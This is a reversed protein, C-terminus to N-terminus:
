KKGKMRGERLAQSAKKRVEGGDAIELWDEGGGGGGNSNPNRKLFRGGRERVFDVLLSSITFKESKSSNEYWSRLKKAESRFSINGPHTNAKGGRGCIVDNPSPPGSTAATAATTSITAKSSTIATATTPTTTSPAPPVVATIPQSISSLSEVGDAATSTATTMSSSSSSAPSIPYFSAVKSINSNNLKEGGSESLRRAEYGADAAAAVVAVPSPPPPLTPIENNSSGDDSNLGGFVNNYNIKDIREKKYQPVWEKSNRRALPPIIQYNIYDEHQLIQQSAQLATPTTTPPTTPTPAAVGSRSSATFRKAATAAAAATDVTTATRTTTGTGVKRRTTYRQYGECIAVAKKSPKLFSSSATTTTIPTTTTTPQANNHDSQMRTIMGNLMWSSSGVGGPLSEKAWYFVDWYVHSALRSSASKFYDFAWSYTKTASRTIM